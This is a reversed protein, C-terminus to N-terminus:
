NLNNRVRQYIVFLNGGREKIDRETDFQFGDVQRRSFKEGNMRKIYEITDRVKEFKLKNYDHKPSEPM